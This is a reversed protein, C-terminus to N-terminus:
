DISVSPEYVLLEGKETTVYVRGEVVGVNPTGSKHRKSWVLRGDRPDFVAVHGSEMGYVAYPGLMAAPRPFMAGELGAGDHRALLEGTREDLVHFVGGEDMGFVRGDKVRALGCRYPAFWLLSGDKRSCAFTNDRWCGIWSVGMSGPVLNTVFHPTQGVSAQWAESAINREWLVEGTELSLCRYPRSLEYSRNQDDFLGHDPGLVVESGAVDMMWMREGIFFERIEAGTEPDLEVLKAGAESLLQDGHTFLGALDRRSWILAGTEGDFVAVGSTTGMGAVLQARMGYRAMFDYPGEATSVRWLVSQAEKDVKLLDAEFGRTYCLGGVTVVPGNFFMRKLSREEILRLQSRLRLFERNM